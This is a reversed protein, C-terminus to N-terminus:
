PRNRKPREPLKRAADELSRSQEREGEAELLARRRAAFEEYEAEARADATTKSVSGKDGLVARENFRLFDNLKIEWDKLFVQKRRRAQDEAFDLWMTVIRNLEGIEEQSLYNKAVTVDAKRVVEGKWATLGMNPKSHDARGAILEPATKGTAAFHLRNQIIQFFETTERRGPDYDGALTFIERVRLYMRKESARIDRIRELLEDFYDPVGSGEVPPDKLRQDDMTFGKVLYESLRETAWRRFQTGRESRVRYGVALIADLNYHEIEREVDRPGERRVIRFKRITPDPRVEGEEFINKLHENVTAVTVQFLEAILAQSLWLTEDVFRCEVRTRGDETQYLVIEGTPPAPDDPAPPPNKAM